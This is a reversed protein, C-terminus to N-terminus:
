DSVDERMKEESIGIHAQGADGKLLPVAIDLVAKRGMVLPQVSYEQGPGVSNVTKLELPFGGQFSHALTRGHSDQIFIYEIDGDSSMYDHAMMQLIVTKETLVYNVSSDALHKAVIIGKQRLHLLLKQTLTSKVFIIMSLGLVTVLGLTVILFKNRLSLIRM